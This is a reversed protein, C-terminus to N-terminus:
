GNTREDTEVVEVVGRDGDVTVLDGTTITQTAHKTNVVSPVRFERSVISSHSLMSGIDTVVAGAIAFLPTWSADTFRTVLVEGVQFEDAQWVLDEIIRARGVVRGPSAGLGELRVGDPAPRVAQTVDWEGVFSLPPEPLRAYAQFTRRAEELKARSFVERADGGGALYEQVDAFDLDAVEDLSRLVGAAVLRRGVEHVVCRVLWISTIMSMRTTERLRSCTEYLETVKEIARRKPLPLRALADAAADEEPDPARDLVGDISFGEDAYRRIMQFIYSPDDIWRPHTLEMEQRGRTGNERLFPIMHRDWFARGAEDARLLAPVDAAAGARIIEMVRPDRRAVQALAWIERASEVTRLSSMDSKVRNRLGAGAQGLWAGCLAELVGYFGFANMYYPMYGVHMDHFYALRRKMEANLEPRDLRTLDIGQARDFEYFRSRVMRRARKKMNRLESVSSKLWFGASLLEEIGDPWTGFPNSYTDLDVEESVFRNTFRSQDRTPLCQGLLYATYSINLYVHGQLYGMHLSMDGPDRVGTSVACGRHVNHQYYQAFSRGLPSMIGTFIEGIDMRSWLTGKQVAEPQSHLYPSTRRDRVPTTTIPRTQLLYPVGDRVAWEIDQEAGYHDRVRVALGALEALEGPELCPTNRAAADVKVLGVTGPEVPACKTVKYRIKRDVVEPGAPDVLFFDSTVKGAVLGEGLGWCAEVVFRDTRGSVPDRTFLVGGTDAHVMQQVVVAISGAESADRYAAARDTWLSAWCVKVADLLASDGATDLVTDHQGAFSHSASDEASASSRVAVRPRGLEGYAELVAAAIDDPVDAALVRERLKAPETGAIDADLGTERVFRDFLATTLCFAPPVPLGARLMGDLRAAKGGLLAPDPVDGAGLVVIQDGAAPKARKGGGTTKAARKASTPTTM